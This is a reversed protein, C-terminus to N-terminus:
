SVGKYLQYSFCFYFLIFFSSIFFTPTDKYFLESLSESPKGPPVLPLSGVQWHLIPRARWMVPAPGLFSLLFYFIHASTSTMRVCPACTRGEGMSSSYKNNSNLWETTDSEAIGHVAARWAERDKVMEQLKSLNMDTSNTIGGLWWMTQRGRRRRGEINELMKEILDARWMLHGFYQRKLKLMLQLMPIFVSGTWKARAGNHANTAIERSLILSPLFYNSPFSSAVRFIFDLM